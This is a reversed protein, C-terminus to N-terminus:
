KVHVLVHIQIITEGSRHAKGLYIIWILLLVRSTWIDPRQIHFDIGNTWTEYFPTM